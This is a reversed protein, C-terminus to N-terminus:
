AMLPSTEMLSHKVLPQEKVKGDLVTYGKEVIKKIVTELEKGESAFLKETLSDMETRNKQEKRKNKYADTGKRVAHCLADWRDGEELVFEKFRM